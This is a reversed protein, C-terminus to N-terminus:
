QAQESSYKSRTNQKMDGITNIFCFGCDIHVTKFPKKKVPYLLTSYKISSFYMAFLGFYVNLFVYFLLGHICHLYLLIILSLFVGILFVTLM